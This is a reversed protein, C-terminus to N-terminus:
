STVKGSGVSGIIGLLEGPKVFTTINDLTPEQIEKTWRAVINNIFIGIENKEDYNANNNNIQNLRYNSSSLTKENISGKIEGLM